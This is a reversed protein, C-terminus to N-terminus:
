LLLKSVMRKNLSLRLVRLCFFGLLTNGPKWSKEPSKWPLPFRNQHQCREPKWNKTSVPDWIPQDSANQLGQARGETTRNRREPRIEPNRKRTETETSRLGPLPRVWSSAPPSLWAENSWFRKASTGWHTPSPDPFFFYNNNYNSIYKNNNNNKSNYKNNNNDMTYSFPTDDSRQQILM